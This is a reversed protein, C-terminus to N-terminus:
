ATPAFHRGPVVIVHEPDDSALTMRSGQGLGNFPMSDIPAQDLGWLAADRERRGDCLRSDGKADSM